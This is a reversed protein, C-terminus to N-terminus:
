SGTRLLFRKNILNEAVDPVAPNLDNIQNLPINLLMGNVTDIKKSPIYDEMFHGIRDMLLTFEVVGNGHNRIMSKLDDMDKSYKKNKGRELWTNYKMIMLVELKPVTFEIDGIRISETEKFVADMPVPIIGGITRSSNAIASKTRYYPYYLDLEIDSTMSGSHYFLKPRVISNVDGSCEFYENSSSEKTPLRNFDENTLKRPILIDVDHTPRSSMLCQLNVARGGIIVVKGEHEYIREFYAISDKLVSLPIDVMEGKRKQKTTM